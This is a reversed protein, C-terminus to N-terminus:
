AHHRGQKEHHRHAEYWIDFIVAHAGGPLAWYEHGALCDAVLVFGVMEADTPLMVPTRPPHNTALHQRIAARVHSQFGTATSWGCITCTAVCRANPGTITYPEDETATM